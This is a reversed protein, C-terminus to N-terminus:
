APITKCWLIRRKVLRFWCLAHSWIGASLLGICLLAVKKIKGGGIHVWFCFSAYLIQLDKILLGPFTFLISDDIPAGHLWTLCCMLHCFYLIGCPKHKFKSFFHVPSLYLGTSLVEEMMILSMLILMGNQLLIIFIHHKVMSHQLM